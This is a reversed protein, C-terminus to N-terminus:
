SYLTGVQLNTDDIARASNLTPPLKEDFFKGIVDLIDTKTLKPYSPKHTHFKVQGKGLSFFFFFDFDCVILLCLLM